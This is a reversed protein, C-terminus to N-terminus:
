RQSELKTQGRRLNKFAWALGALSLGRNVMPNECIYLYDDLNIFQHRVVPAYISITLIALAAAIFVEPRGIKPQSTAPSVTRTGYSVRPRKASKAM